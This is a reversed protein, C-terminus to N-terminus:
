GVVNGTTFTFSRSFATGNMTGTIAVTYTTNPSLPTTPYAVGEFSPLLKNPDNASYLLQLTTTHGSGDTITGSTLVITDSPNGAVAVPTGWNGSTNPPTPTEGGSSYAVGTTGQCPFTLPTAGSTSQMSGISLSAYIEPFGNFTSESWGVGVATVPWVGIAIHYVGSLWGYVMQQGYQAESLTANTFYGGSVGSAFANQPYGFHVARDAYTAGTYGSNTSVETDTFVNNTKLYGAHAQAAQDLTTNETLAPFGCAQRQQNLLQFAALQASTAAYQPTSVNASTATQTSGTSTSPTGSSGSSSGTSNSGSGGGGGCAALLATSAFAIATLASINKKM